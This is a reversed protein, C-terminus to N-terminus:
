PSRKSGVDNCDRPAKAPDAHTQMKYTRQNDPPTVDQKADGLRRYPCTSSRRSPQVNSDLVLRRFLLAGSQEPVTRDCPLNTANAHKSCASEFPTPHMGHQERMMSEVWGICRSPCCRLGIAAYACIMFGTRWLDADDAALAAAAAAALARLRASSSTTCCAATASCRSVQSPSEPVVTPICVGSQHSPAAPRSHASRQSSSWTGAVIYPSSQAAPHGCVCGPHLLHAAHCLHVGVQFFMSPETVCLYRGHFLTANRPQLSGQHPNHGQEAGATTARRLRGHLPVSAAAARPKVTTCLVCPLCSRRPSM